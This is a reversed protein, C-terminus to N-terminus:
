QIVLSKTLRIISQVIPGAKSLLSKLPYNLSLKLDQRCSASAFCLHKEELKPLTFYTQTMKQNLDTQPMATLRSMANQM